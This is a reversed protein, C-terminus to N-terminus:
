DTMRSCFGQLLSILLFIDVNEVTQADHNPGHIRGGVTRGERRGDTQGETRGDSTVKCSPIKEFSVAHSLEFNTQFRGLIQESDTRFRSTIQEYNM